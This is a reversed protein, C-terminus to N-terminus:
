SIQKLIKRIDTYSMVRMAAAAYRLTAMLPMPPTATHGAGEGEEGEEEGRTAAKRGSSLPEGAAAPTYAVSPASGAGM